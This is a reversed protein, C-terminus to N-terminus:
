KGLDIDLADFLKEAFADLDEITKVDKRLTKYQDNGLLCKLFTALKGEEQAEVADLPWKKGPPVVYEVDLYKFKIEEELAEKELTKKTAM